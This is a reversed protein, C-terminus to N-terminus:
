AKKNCIELLIDAYKQTVTKLNFDKKVKQFANEGISNRVKENYILEKIKDVWNKENRALFGNVGDEITTKYPEVPSAVCPIGLASYELYRLNSKSRNFENDWLPAIAIDFGMSHLKKPYDNIQTWTSDNSFRENDILNNAGHLCKIHLNPIENLIKELIPRVISLDKGHGSAGSWGLVIKDPNFPKKEFNWINFDIANPVTYVKSKLCRFVSNLYDTSVIIADSLKIQDHSNQEIDTGVGINKASPHDNDIHFPDDDSEMVLKFKYIDKYMELTALFKLSHVAQCVVVDVISFLHNFYSIYNEPNQEYDRILSDCKKPDFEPYMPSINPINKMENAFQVIRYYSIPATGLHLFLVKLGKIETLNINM